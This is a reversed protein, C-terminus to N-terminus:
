YALLTPLFRSGLITSVVVVYFFSAVLVAAAALDKSYGVATHREPHLHNLAAEVSSNQLETILILAFGLALFLAETSSLPWALAAIIGTILLGGYWQTRFSFDVRLAGRLGRLAHPFRRLIRKIM